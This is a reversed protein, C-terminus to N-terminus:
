IIKFNVVVFPRTASGSSEWTMTQSNNSNKNLEFIKKLKFKQTSLIRDDMFRCM